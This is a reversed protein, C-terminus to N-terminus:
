VVEVQWQRICVFFLSLLGFQSISLHIILPLMLTIGCQCSHHIMVLIRADISQQSVKRSHLAVLNSWFPSDCMQPMNLHIFGIWCNFFPPEKRIGVVCIAFHNCKKTLPAPLFSKKQPPPPELLEWFGMKELNLPWLSFQNGSVWHIRKRVQLLQGALLQTGGHVDPASSWAQHSHGNSM